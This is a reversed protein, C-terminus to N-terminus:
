PYVWKRLDWDWCYWDLQDPIKMFVAKSGCAQAYRFAQLRDNFEAYSDGDYVRYRVGIM